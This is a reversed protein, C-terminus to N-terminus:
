NDVSKQVHQEYGPLLGKDRLRVLIKERSSESFEPWLSEINVGLAQAIHIALQLKPMVLGAEYRSLNAHDLGTIEALERQSM